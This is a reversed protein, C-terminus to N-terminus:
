SIPAPDKAVPTESAAAPKNDSASPANQIDVLTEDNPRSETDVAYKVQGLDEEAFRKKSLLIAGVMAVLLLISALEFPLTYRSFLEQGLMRTSGESMLMNAQFSGFPLTRTAFPYSVARILLAGVYALVIGYIVKTGMPVASKPDDKPLARDGTFMIAFLLIITLGVAYVLVQAIALFDANNLIFFAANSLFVVILFLAAYIISRHLVVGIASVVAAVAFVWFIISDAM